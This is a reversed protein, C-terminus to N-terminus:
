EMDAVSDMEIDIEVKRGQRAVKEAAKNGSDKAEDIQELELLALEALEEEEEEEELEKLEELKKDFM